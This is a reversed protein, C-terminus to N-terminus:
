PLRLRVAAGGLPPGNTASIDGDHSTVIASVIALGLGTGERGTARGTRAPDARRFREFAVPLLDTPFGKGDDAVTVAVGVNGLDEVIIRVKSFAHRRANAVLNTLVQEIRAPDANVLVDDGSVDMRIRGPGLRSVVSEALQRPHVAQKHLRVQGQDMRALVLLDDALRSLRETEDRAAELSESVADLRTPDHRADDLALQALEIEGRLVSIPTRLEHSADDVFARDAAMAAQVRDLLTNLHRALLAVEHDGTPEPLRRAPDNVSLRAAEDTLRTVPRLVAGVLLWAGVGLGIVVLPMLVALALRARQRARELPQTTAGVVVVETHGSVTIPEALLRTRPGVGTVSRNAVVASNALARAREDPTLVAPKGDGFSSQVVQGDATTVQSFTDAVVVDLVGAGVGAKVVEIRNRLEHDITTDITHTVDASVLLTGTVILLGALLGASVSLRGRLSRPWLRM